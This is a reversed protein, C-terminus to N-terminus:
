GRPQQEDMIRAALDLKGRVLHSEVDLDLFGEFSRGPVPAIVAIPQDLVTLRREAASRTRPVEVDVLEADHAPTRLRAPRVALVEELVGHVIQPLLEIQLLRAVRSAADRAHSRYGGEVLPPSLAGVIPCRPRFPLALRARTRGLARRDCRPTAATSSCCP